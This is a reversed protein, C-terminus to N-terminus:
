RSFVLIVDELIHSNLIETGAIEKQRMEKRHNLILTTTSMIVALVWTVLLMKWEGRTMDFVRPKVGSFHFYIDRPNTVALKDWKKMALYYWLPYLPLFVLIILIAGILAVVGALVGFMSMNYSFGLFRFKNDYYFRM